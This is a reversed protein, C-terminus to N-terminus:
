AAPMRECDPDYGERLAAYFRECVEVTHGLWSAIKVIPTGAQAWWSARTHRLTQWKTGALDSARVVRRLQHGLTKPSVFDTVPRRGRGSPAQSPFLFGSRGAFPMLLAKLEACMPVRRESGTKVRGAQGLDYLIRVHISPRDGLDLDEARLRALEGLRLGSLVAVKIPLVARPEIEQARRCLTEFQARDLHRATFRKPSKVKVRLSRLRKLLETPFEDSRELAGLAAYLACLSSNVTQPKVTARRETVLAAVAALTVHDTTTIGRRMIANLHFRYGERTRPARDTLSEWRRFADILDM